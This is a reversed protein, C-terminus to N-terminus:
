QSAPTRITVRSDAVAEAGEVVIARIRYIYHTDPEIDATDVYVTSDRGVEAIERFETLGQVRRLIRYGTVADTDLADWLLTISDHTPEAVLNREAFQSTSTSPSPTAVPGADCSLDNTAGSLDTGSESIRLMLLDGDRWPQECVGWTLANGGGKTTTATSDDFDLRLAVSGDLAIFDIHHGTLRGHPALEMGVKGSEWAIRKASLDGM